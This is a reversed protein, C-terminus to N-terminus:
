GGFQGVVEEFEVGTRVAVFNLVIENISKAPKIYIDGVFQNNDIIEGTNNTEDCVVRFDYIGRRGQIDRLYPVVMNRFQTRTFADNFEFLLIESATAIAKQLVIFLRRVNIRNFASNRGLATKDGFLVTDKNRQSIVPNIDNKYLEDRQAKNPNFALKVVNKIQGRQYGAPSWWPDRERDTRAMLGAIDGNLPVWRYIDNFPDYQYKYGSDIVQYSTSRLVSRFQTVDELVDLPNNVVDAHQPSVVSVCDKRVTTINDSIYNALGEGHVGHASKGTMIVSVDVEEPDKFQNYADRLNTLPIASESLSDTGNSFSKTFPYTTVATMNVATNSVSGARDNAFWIYKSGTHIADKVYLSGGQEGKADTARSLGEFVELVTGPSQTFEGDEDIVVVHLEDGVGGRAEVYASTGPARDVVDYYEWKRSLTTLTTNAIVNYASTFNIDFSATNGDTSIDDITLIKLEQIGVSTNGSTVIDGSQLVDKIAAAETNANDTNAGTITVTAVSSGTTFDIELNATNGSFDSSYAQTSDCVSVKLSNGMLGPYKAVYYATGPLTAFNVEYDTENKITTNAVASNGVTANYANADAARSVYLKDAYALYNHATFYTEFNNSNPRGFRLELERQSTIYERDEVPGWRFVGGVAGITEAINSVFHTLDFERVTVAPSVSFAM